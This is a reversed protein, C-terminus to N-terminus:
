RKSSAEWTWCRGPCWSACLHKQPWIQCTHTSLHLQFGVLYFLRKRIIETQRTNNCSRGVSWWSGVNVRYTVCVGTAWENARVRGVAQRLLVVVLAVWQVLYLKSFAWKMGCCGDNSVTRSRIATRERLKNTYHLIDAKKKKKWFIIQM